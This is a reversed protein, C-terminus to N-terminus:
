NKEYGGIKIKKVFKPYALVFLLIFLCFVLLPQWTFEIPIGKIARNVYYKMFHTYPFIQAVVQMSKPLGEMPFTYAAFSFAIATFGSGITLASRFDRAFSVFIVGLIQYIIVLIFTILVVNIKSIHLPAGILDFLLFNMWWSVFFLALTYPLIKGMLAIFPKGDAKQLWYKGKQYRFEIGLVYITVMMVIMQLLMPFIAVLLYFTYNFYPNFLPYEAIKVSQAQSKVKETQLGKQLKKKMVLGASYMGITTQFDKQILGASLMFQNNTYCIITQQDTQYLKKQFNVPIEIFGVIKQQQILKQAEKEDTLAMKLEISPTADLMRLLNASQQSQDRDIYAMPLDRPVGNYFLASFFGFLFLPFVIVYFLRKASLFLNKTESIFLYSFHKM